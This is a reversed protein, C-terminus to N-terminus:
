CKVTRQIEELDQSLHGVGFELNKSTCSHSILEQSPYIAIDGDINLWFYYILYNQFTKVDDQHNYNLDFFLEQYNAVYIHWFCQQQQQQQQGQLTVKFILKEVLIREFNIIGSSKSLDQDPTKM